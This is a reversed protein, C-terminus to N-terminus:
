VSAHPMLVPPEYWDNIIAVAGGDDPLHRDARLAQKKENYLDEEAVGISLTPPVGVPYPQYLLFFNM